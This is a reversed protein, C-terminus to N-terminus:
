NHAVTNDAGAKELDLQTSPVECSGVLFCEKQKLSIGMYDGREPHKCQQPVAHTSDEIGGNQSLWSWGQNPKEATFNFTFIENM